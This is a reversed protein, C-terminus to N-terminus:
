PKKSVTRIVREPFIFIIESFLFNVLVDFQMFLFFAAAAAM